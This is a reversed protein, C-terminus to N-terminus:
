ADAAERMVDAVVEAMTRRESDALVNVVMTHLYVRTDNNPWDPLVTHWGTEPHRYLVGNEIPQPRWGTRDLYARVQAVTPLDPM